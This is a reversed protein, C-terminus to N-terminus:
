RSAKFFGPEHTVHLVHLGACGGAVTDRAVAGGLTFTPQPWDYQPQRIDVVSAIPSAKGLFTPVKGLQRGLFVLSRSIEGTKRHL